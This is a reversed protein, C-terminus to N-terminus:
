TKRSERQYTEDTEIIDSMKRPLAAKLQELVIMWHIRSSVRHRFAANPAYSQIESQQCFDLIPWSNCFRLM